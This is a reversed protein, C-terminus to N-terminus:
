QNADGAPPGGLSWPSLMMAQSGTPAAQLIPEVGSLLTIATGAGSPEGQTAVIMVADGQHLDSLAMAPMRSLMQQFDPAGGSRMHTKAADAGGPPAASQATSGNPVTAGASVNADSGLTAAGAKLLAAIRQAMEPPLKRLQSDQTIKVRAPKKSLLDQVSITGQSADVSNIIGALNRFSGTVMEEAALEAGDATRNGRVRLQDGPHIESLSSPKADDFKVSDPAYRRIVTDKNTHIAVTKTGGFSTVSITVTGTAPDVASVLGGLGRKQWDQLEQQQHAEVDSRRMVVISSAEMSKADESPKGGVLIRDGVQLDHFQIPTANKLNTDGPAIRLIRVSGPVTVSVDAGSDPTLTLSNGNIAKIAGIRRTAASQGAAQQSQQQSAPLAFASNSVGLVCCALVLIAAGASKM